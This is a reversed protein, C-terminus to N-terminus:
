LQRGEGVGPNLTENGTQVKLASLLALCLALNSLPWPCGPIGHEEGGRCLLLVSNSTVWKERLTALNSPELKLSCKPSFIPHKESGGGGM